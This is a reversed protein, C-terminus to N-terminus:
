GTMTYINMESRWFTMRGFTRLCLFFKDGVHGDKSIDVWISEYISCKGDDDPLGGTAVRCPRKSCWWLRTSAILWSCFLNFNLDKVRMRTNTKDECDHFHQCEVAHCRRRDHVREEQRCEAFTRFGETWEVGDFVVQLGILRQSNSWVSCPSIPYM